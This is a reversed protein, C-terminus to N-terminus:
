GKRETFDCWLRGDPTAIRYSGPERASVKYCDNKGGNLRQWRICLAEGAAQVQGRDNEELDSERASPMRYLATATQGAYSAVGTTGNVCNFSFRKGDLLRQAEAGQLQSDALVPALAGSALMLAFALISRM